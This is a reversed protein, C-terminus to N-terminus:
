VVIEPDPNTTMFGSKHKWFYYTGPDLAPLDNLVNRAVGFTDTVGRWIINMGAADTSIWIDVGEVPFGTVSNTVTYTYSVSGAPFTIAGSSSAAGLAAGTTGATLHGALVANWVTNEIATLAMATLEMADGAQAATKAADYAATLTMADGTAARSSVTADLNALRPDGLATLGAGAVGVRAYVDGSQPTSAETFVQVQDLLVGSTASKPAFVLVEANTEAQTLDFVYWGPMNVADLETPNVDNTQAAAGWDKSLYCTINNADGTKSAGTASEYAHVALKQGATNKYIM